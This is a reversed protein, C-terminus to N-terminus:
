SSIAGSRGSAAPAGGEAKLWEAALEFLRERGYDVTLVHGAGEVWVLRKERAGLRGFAREAATPSIRNDTRSQLMLTPARVQPLAAWARRATAALARLARPPFYGYGLGRGREADNLVSGESASSPYPQFIMWLPALRAVWRLGLPMVLYPAALVLAPLDSTAAAIQVALAGGMSQGFIAVWAHKGRLARYADIAGELWRDATSRSFDRLTTGHGALLPAHVTYGRDHLFEALYALSQPTDGGGHLLLVAAPGGRLHIEGAGVVVGSEDLPRERLARREVARASSRRWGALLALAAFVALALIM